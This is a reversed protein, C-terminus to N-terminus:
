GMLRGPWTSIGVHELVPQTTVTGDVELIKEGKSLRVVSLLTSDSQTKMKRMARSYLYSSDVLYLDINELM